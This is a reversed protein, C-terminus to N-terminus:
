GGKKRGVESYDREDRGVGMQWGCCHGVRVIFVLGM